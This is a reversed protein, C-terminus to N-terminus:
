TGHQVPRLCSGETHETKLVSYQQVLLPDSATSHQPLRNATGTDYCRGVYYQSFKHGKSAAPLLLTTAFDASDNLGLSPPLRAKCFQFLEELDLDVLDSPQLIWLWTDVQAM